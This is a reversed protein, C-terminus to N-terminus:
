LHVGCEGCVNVGGVCVCVERGRREETKGRKKGKNESLELLPKGTQFPYGLGPKGWLGCQWTHRPFIEKGM